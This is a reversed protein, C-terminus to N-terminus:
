GARAVAALPTTASPPTLSRLGDRLWRLVVVQDVGLRAAVDKYTVGPRSALLIAAAQQEPLHALEM